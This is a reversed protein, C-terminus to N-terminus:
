YAYTVKASDITGDTGGDTGMMVQFQVFPATGDLKWVVPPSSLTAIIQATSMDAERMSRM